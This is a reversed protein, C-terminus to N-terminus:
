ANVKETFIEQLKAIDVVNKEIQEVEDSLGKLENFLQHNESEFMQIDEASIEDQELAFKSALEEDDKQAFLVAKTITTRQQKKLLIARDTRDEGDFNGYEDDDDGDDGDDDAEGASNDDDLLRQPRRERVPIVPILKKNSELKLLKYTDLEHRVRYSKQQSYINYVQRLYEGLLELVGAMHTAVQKAPKATGCQHRLDDIFQTCIQLIKESEKDIIDREHDTMQASSKLHQGFRMYAARNEILLNRLQTIQHCIDATKIAFDTRTSKRLIRNKDPVPTAAAGANNRLRVTKVSAKFLATIDM